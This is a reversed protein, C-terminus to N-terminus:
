KCVEGTPAIGLSLGEPLNLEKLIDPSAPEEADPERTAISAATGSLQSDQSVGTAISEDAPCDESGGEPLEPILSAQQSQAASPLSGPSAFSDTNSGEGVLFVLLGLALLALAGTLLTMFGNMLQGGSYISSILVKFYLYSSIKFIFPLSKM